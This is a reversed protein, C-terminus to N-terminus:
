RVQALRPSIGEPQHSSQSRFCPFHWAVPEAPHYNPGWLAAGAWPAQRDGPGLTEPERQIRPNPYPIPCGPLFDEQARGVGEVTVGLPAWCPWVAWLGRLGELTRLWLVGESWGKVSRPVPFMSFPLQGCPSLSRRGFDVGEGVEWLM